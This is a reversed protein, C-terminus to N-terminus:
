ESNLHGRRGKHGRSLFYKPNTLTTQSVQKKNRKDIRGLWFVFKRDEEQKHGKDAAMNMNRKGSSSRRKAQLSLQM